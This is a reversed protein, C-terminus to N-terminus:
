LRVHLLQANVTRGFQAETEQGALSLIFFKQFELPIKSLYKMQM